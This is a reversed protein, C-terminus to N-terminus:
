LEGHEIVYILLTKLLLAKCVSQPPTVWLLLRQKPSATPVGSALLEVLHLGNM